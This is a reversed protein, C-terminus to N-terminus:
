NARTCDLDIGFETCGDLAEEDDSEEDILQQFKTGRCGVRVVKPADVHDVHDDDENEEDLAEVEEDLRRNSKM